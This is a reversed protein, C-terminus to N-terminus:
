LDLDRVVLYFDVWCIFLFFFNFKKSCIQVRFVGCIPISYVWISWMLKLLLGDSKDSSSALAVDNVPSVM